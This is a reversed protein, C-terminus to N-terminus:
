TSPPNDIEGVMIGRGWLAAYVLNPSRMDGELWTIGPFQQVEPNSIQKWTNGMNQSVYMTDKKAGGVRGFIYVNPNKDSAGKGFTVFECTDVSAITNFTKGGDTSRYLKNGELEEPNRAFSMWVDGQKTPNSVIAPRVMWTPLKNSAGKKWNAGGDQSYYFTWGNYYYFTKGTPDQRDAALIYSSLWPNISNAWSKPLADYHTHKDNNPDFPKPKPDHDLNRALQWTKGADMTYHTYPGWTPSWVMNNPNTPSMAIQGGMAIMKERKSKEAKWMNEAPISEFAQWTKGNDKTLGHIPYFGQWQHFGVFAAYNPKKYAYDMGTAGAVHPFPVPYKKWDPNAWKFAPNIDINAPNIKELPVQYRNLHRFGIMDQVASILDAGGQSKPVPPVRVINPDLEELNNMLWRFNPNEANINDTCAVGFGNTWWVRQPNAPDIVVVSAGTGSYSQYYKPASPNVKDKPYNADYAGMYMTQKKWTNGGNDSRYLYKDSIALVMNPNDPQVAVASYVKEIGDPTIDTWKNNKYKRVGGSKKGGSEPKTGFSVYLTGDKAVTGRLPDKEGAINRWSEGTDSSSWVGKGHIGVYITKTAQNAKGSNRDFAVFTFGPIDKNEKGNSKKYEPLSNASPLGGNVQTWEQKADSRWLGDRRSAFYVINSNNPDVALREGTDSRYQKDAGVFVDKKGLGTPKWTNGRDQSVMIEGSYKYKKRGGETIISSGHNVAAYVHSPKQPDIAISELGIGGKSFNTNFMDMLPLWKNNRRDFRYAGGVDTRIYVDYPEVPAIAMGTVYGMGQINVNSWKFSQETKAQTSIMSFNSGVLIIAATFVLLVFFSSKRLLPTFHLQKSLINM